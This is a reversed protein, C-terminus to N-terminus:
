FSKAWLSRPAMPTVTAVVLGDDGIDVYWDGEPSGDQSQAKVAFAQSFQTTGTYDISLNLAGRGGALFVTDLQAGGTPSM